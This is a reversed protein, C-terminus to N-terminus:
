YGWCMEQCLLKTQWLQHFSLQASNPDSVGHLLRQPDFWARPATFSGGLLVQTETSEFSRTYLAPAQTKELPLVTFFIQRRSPGYDGWMRFQGVCNGYVFRFLTITSTSKITLDKVSPNTEQHDQRYDWLQHLMKPKLAACWHTTNLGQSWEMEEELGVCYIIPVHM